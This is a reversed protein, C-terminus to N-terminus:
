LLSESSYSLQKRKIIRNKYTIILFDSILAIFESNTPKGKSKQVTYGFMETLVECDGRDWSVEIAHRIAREVRSSTTDYEKAINPYLEKTVSNILSPNTYTMLIASRLYHYGKIHAPIGMKHLLTTVHEELKSDMEGDEEYKRQVDDYIEYLRRSLLLLDCPKPFCFSAGAQAAEELITHNHIGTLVIFLPPDDSVTRISRILNIGEMNKLPLDLIVFQPKLRLIDEYAVIGDDSDGVITIDSGLFYDYLNNKYVPDQDALYVRINM